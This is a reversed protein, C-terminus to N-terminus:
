FRAIARQDPLLRVRFMMLNRFLNYDGDIDPLYTM